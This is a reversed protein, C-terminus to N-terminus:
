IHNIVQPEVLWFHQTEFPKKRKLDEQFTALGGDVFSLHLNGLVGFSVVERCLYNQEMLGSFVACLNDFVM